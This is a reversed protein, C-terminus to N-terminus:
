EIIIDRLRLHAIKFVERLAASTEEARSNRLRREFGAIIAEKKSERACIIFPFGFQQWYAANQKKFLAIEDPSLQNLGAAAQERASESTLTGSLAANGVLDPHAKILDMRKNDSSNLVTEWLATRLDNMQAFPRQPATQEAIWPSNEFVPGVVLAFEAGSLANLEAMSYHTQMTSQKDAGVEKHYGRM